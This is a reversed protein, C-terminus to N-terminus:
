IGEDAQDVLVFAIRFASGCPETVDNGLGFVDEPFTM